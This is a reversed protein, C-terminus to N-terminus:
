GREGRRKPLGVYIVVLAALSALPLVLFPSSGSVEIRSPVRDGDAATRAVEEPDAPSLALGVRWMLYTALVAGALVAVLTALESRDILWACAAGLVLGVVASVLVFWGTSTFEGRLGASDRYWTGDYVVGSVPDWLRFWVWGAVAGVVAYLVVVLGVQRAVPRWAARDHGAPAPPHSM